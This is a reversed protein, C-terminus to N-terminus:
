RHKAMVCSMAEREFKHARLSLSASASHSAGSVRTNVNHLRDSVCLYYLKILRETKIKMFTCVERLVRRETM